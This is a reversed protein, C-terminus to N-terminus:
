VAHELVGSFTIPAAPSEAAKLNTALQIGSGPQFFDVFALGIFLAATTLVEFYVLSKLALRGVAKLDGAHDAIGVVLMGFILPVAVCKILRLFINSVFQLQQAQQPWLWGVLLGAGAALVIWGTLSISKLLTLM